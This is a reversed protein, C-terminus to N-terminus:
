DGGRTVKNVIQNVRHGVRAKGEKANMKGPADVAPDFRTWISHQSQLAFAIAFGIEVEAICDLSSHKGAEPTHSHLVPTAANTLVVTRQTLLAESTREWFSNRG